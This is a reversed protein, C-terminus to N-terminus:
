CYHSGTITVLNPFEHSVLPGPHLSSLLLGLLFQGNETTVPGTGCGQPHLHPTFSAVTKEEICYDGLRRNSSVVLPGGPFSLGVAYLTPYPLLHIQTTFLFALGESSHACTSTCNQTMVLVELCQHYSDQEQM